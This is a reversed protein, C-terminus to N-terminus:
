RVSGDVRILDLPERRTLLSKVIMLYSQQKPFILFFFFLCVKLVCYVPQSCNRQNLPAVAWYGDM